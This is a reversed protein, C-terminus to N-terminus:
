RTLFMAVKEEWNHLNSDIISTHGDHFVKPSLNVVSLLSSIHLHIRMQAHPLSVAEIIHVVRVCGLLENVLVGGLTSDTRHKLPEVSRDHRITLGARALSVGHLAELVVCTIWLSTYHWPWHLLYELVDLHLWILISSEHHSCAVQLYIIFDNWIQELHFSRSELDNLVPLFSDTNLPQTFPRDAWGVLDVTQHLSSSEASGSCCGLHIIHWRSGM